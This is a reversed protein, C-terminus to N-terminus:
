GTITRQQLSGTYKVNGHVTIDGEVRMSGDAMVWIYKTKDANLYIKYNNMFINNYMMIPAYFAIQETVTIPNPFRKAYKDFVMYTAADNNADVYGIGSAANPRHYYQTM